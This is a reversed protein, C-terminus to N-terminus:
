RPQSRLCQFYSRVWQNDSEYSMLVMANHMAESVYGNSKFFYFVWMPDEIIEDESWDEWPKKIHDIFNKFNTQWSSSFGQRSALLDDDYFTQSELKIDLQDSGTTHSMTINVVRYNDHITWSQFKHKLLDSSRYNSNGLFSEAVELVDQEEIFILKLKFPVIDM